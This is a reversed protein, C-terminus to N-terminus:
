DDISCSADVAADVYEDVIGSVHLYSEHLIQRYMCVFPLHGRVEEPGNLDRLSYERM